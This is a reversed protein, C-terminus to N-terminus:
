MKGERFSKWKKQYEIIVSAFGLLLDAYDPHVPRYIEAMQQLNALHRELDNVAQEHLRILEQRTTRPM